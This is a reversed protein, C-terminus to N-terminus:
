PRSAASYTKENSRSGVSNRWHMGCLRYARLQSAGFSISTSQSIYDIHDIMEEIVLLVDRPETM